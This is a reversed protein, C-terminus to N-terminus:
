VTISGLLTKRIDESALEVVDYNSIVHGKLCSTETCTFTSVHHALRLTEPYGRAMSDNGLLKGLADDKDSNDSVIDVRLIPSNHNGFKVILNDGLTNRILSKIILNIDMYAPGQIKALPTAIRDIIRFKSCKSIGIMSNQKLLCNETVKKISENKEEFISSKLSGDVLIISKNFKSSLEM